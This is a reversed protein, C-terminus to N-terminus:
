EEFPNKQKWTWLLSNIKWAHATTYTKGNPAKGNAAKYDSEMQADMEANAEIAHLEPNRLCSAISAGAGLIVLHMGGM